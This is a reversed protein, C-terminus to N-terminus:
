ATGIWRGSRQRGPQREAGLWDGPDNAIAALNVLLWRDPEGVMTGSTQRRVVKWDCVSAMRGAPTRSLSRLCTWAIFPCPHELVRGDAMRTLVDSPGERVGRRGGAGRATAGCPLRVEGCPQSGRPPAADHKMGNREKGHRHEQERRHPQDMVHVELAGAQGVEIREDPELGGLRADNAINVARHQDFQSALVAPDHGVVLHRQDHALRDQSGLVLAEEAM